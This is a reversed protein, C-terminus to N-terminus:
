HSLIQQSFKDVLRSKKQQQKFLLFSSSSFLFSHRLLKFQKTSTVSIFEGLSTARPSDINANDFHEPGSKLIVYEMKFPYYTM